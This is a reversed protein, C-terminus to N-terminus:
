QRRQDGASTRGRAERPCFWSSSSCLARPAGSRRSGTPNGSLGPARGEESVEEASAHARAAKERAPGPLLEATQPEALCSRRDAPGPPSGRPLCRAAAPLFTASGETGRKERCWEEM